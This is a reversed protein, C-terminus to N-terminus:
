NNIIANVEKETLQVVNKIKGKKNYTVKLDETGKKTYQFSMRQDARKALLIRVLKGNYYYEDDKITINWKKLEKKKNVFKDKVGDIKGNGAQIKMALGIAAEAQKKTIDNSKLWKECIEKVDGVLNEEDPCISFYSNKTVLVIGGDGSCTPMDKKAVKGFVIYYYNGEQIVKNNEIYDDIVDYHYTEKSNKKSQKSSSATQKNSQTKASILTDGLAAAAVCLFLTFIISGVIGTKTKKKFKMIADLREKLLDKEENLMVSALSNKMSNGRSIADLLTEGYQKKGKQDLSQIVAEDCSLECLRNIERQMVYVLPNFWHLCITFQVLWKYFMDKQKYHILEHRITNQFHIDSLEASPLLICPHFFGILMPSSILPNSYLAVTKKLKLAEMEHGLKEWLDLQTIEEQGARLYKIFNRYESVKSIFLILAVMLWLFFILNIPNVPNANLNEMQGDSTHLTLPSDQTFGQSKQSDNVLDDEANEQTLVPIMSLNPMFPIFDLGTKWPILLRAIVILWIYYQWKKSFRNKYFSKSLFLISMLVVGSISLSFLIDMFFSM